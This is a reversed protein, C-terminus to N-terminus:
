RKRPDMFLKFVKAIDNRARNDATRMMTSMSKMKPASGVGYFVKGTDGGFAGGGKLVWEPANLDQITKPGKKAGTCGTFVLMSIIVLFLLKVTIRM